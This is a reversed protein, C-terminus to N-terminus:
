CQQKWRAHERAQWTTTVKYLYNFLKIVYMPM